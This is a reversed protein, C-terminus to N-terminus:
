CSRISKPSTAPFSSSSPAITATLALVATEGLFARYSLPPLRRTQSRVQWQGRYIAQGASTAFVEMISLYNPPLMRAALLAVVNPHACTSLQRALSRPLTHPFSLALSAPRPVSRPQYVCWRSREGSAFSTSRAFPRACLGRSLHLSPSVSLRLSPSVSLRLSPSVSRNPAHSGVGTSNM